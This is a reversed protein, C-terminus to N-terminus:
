QNKYVTGWIKRSFSPIEGNQSVSSWTSTKLCFKFMQYLEVYNPNVGLVYLSGNQHLLLNGCMPTPTNEDHDDNHQSLIKWTNKIIDFSALSNTWRSIDNLCSGGFIYVFNGLVCISASLSNVQIDKPPIHLKWDGNLTNYCWLENGDADSTCIYGGFLILFERSTAMCHYVRNEPVMQVNGANMGM